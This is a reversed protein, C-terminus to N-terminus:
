RAYLRKLQEYAARIEVFQSADGGKDPHHKAALSRYRARVDQWSVEGLLGLVALAPQPDISPQYNDWFSDLMAQVRAETVGFFNDPNSFFLINPGTLYESASLASSVSAESADAGVSDVFYASVPTVVLSLDSTEEYTFYLECLAAQTIFLKQYLAVLHVDSWPFAKAAVVAEVLDYIKSEHRGLRQEVAAVAQRM